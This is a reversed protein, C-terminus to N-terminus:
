REWIQIPKQHISSLMAGYGVRNKVDDDVVVQVDLLHALQRTGIVETYREVLARDLGEVLSTLANTKREAWVILHILPPRAGEGFCVDEPTADYDMIFVEKVTQDLAGLAEAMHKAISYHCYRCACGDGQRMREVVEGRSSAGAKKACYELAETLAVAVASAADPMRLESAPVEVAVHPKAKSSSSQTM